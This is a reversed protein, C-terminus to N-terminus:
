QWFLFLVFGPRERKERKEDVMFSRAVRTTASQATEAAPSDDGRTNTRPSLAPKSPLAGARRSPKKKNRQTSPFRLSVLWVRFVSEGFFSEGRKREKARKGVRSLLPRTRVLSLSFISEEERARLLPTQKSNARQEKGATQHSCVEAARKAFEDIVPFFFEFFLDYCTASSAVWLEPRSSLQIPPKPGPKPPKPPPAAADAAAAPPPPPQGQPPPPPPLAALEAAAAPRRRCDSFSRSSVQIPPPKLGKKPPKPPPAAADAAAAPPPPPGKKPPPPPLAAELAAAAPRM